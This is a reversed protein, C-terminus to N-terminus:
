TEPSAYITRRRLSELLGRLRQLERDARSREKALASLEPVSPEPAAAEEGIQRELRARRAELELARAYGTTLTEEVREPSPATDGTSPAELLAEIEHTLTALRDEM